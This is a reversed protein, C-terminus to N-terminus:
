SEKSQVKIVLKLMNIIIDDGSPDGAPSWNSNLHFDSTGGGTTGAGIWNRTTQSFSNLAYFFTFIIYIYKM